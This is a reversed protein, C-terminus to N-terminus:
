IREIKNTTLNLEFNGLFAVNELNIISKKNRLRIKLILPLARQIFRQTKLHVFKQKLV